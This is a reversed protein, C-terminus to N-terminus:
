PSFSQSDASAPVKDKGVAYMGTIPGVWDAIWQIGPAREGPTLGIHSAEWEGGDLASTVLNLIRPAIGGSEL